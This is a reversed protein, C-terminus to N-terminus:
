KKVEAKIFFSKLPKNGNTRFSVIKTVTGSDNSVSPIYNIKLLSVQKPKILSDSLYPVVCGCQSSVGIIKIVEDTLNSISHNFVLTDKFNVVGINVTDQFQLETKNKQANTDGCSVFVFLSLAIVFINLSQLVTKQYM